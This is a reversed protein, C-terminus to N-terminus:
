LFNFPDNSSTTISTIKESKIVIHFTDTVNLSLKLAKILDDKVTVACIVLTDNKVECPHRKIIEYNGGEAWGQYYLIESKSNEAYKLMPLLQNSNFSYFADIFNNAITLQKYSNVDSEPKSSNKCFCFSFILLLLLPKLSM